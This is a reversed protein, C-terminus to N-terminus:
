RIIAELPRRCARLHAPRPLTNSLECPPSNAPSLPGRGGWFSGTKRSRSVPTGIRMPCTWLSQQPRHLAAKRRTMEGQLNVASEKGRNQETEFEVAQGENLTSLGAREVASIHVFVDKGGTQPQIFGYGKTPNSASGSADLMHHASAWLAAQTRNHVAIKRLIAKLHVKVTAEAISCNHAILKNSEGRTLCAMIERERQSLQQISDSRKAVGDGKWDTRSTQTFTAKNDDRGAMPLFQHGIM